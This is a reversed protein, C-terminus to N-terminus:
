VPAFVICFSTLSYEIIIDSHTTRLAKDFGIGQMIIGSSRRSMDCAFRLNSGFCADYIGGISVKIGLGIPCLEKLTRGYNITGLCNSAICEEIVIFSTYAFAKAIHYIYILLVLILEFTTMQFIILERAIAIASFICQHFIIRLFISEIHM